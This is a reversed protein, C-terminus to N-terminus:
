WKTVKRFYDTILRNQLVVDPRKEGNTKVFYDAASYTDFRKYKVNSVGKVLKECEFWNTVIGTFKTSIIAYYYSRKM